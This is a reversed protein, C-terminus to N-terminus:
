ARVTASQQLWPLKDCYEEWALKSNNGLYGRGDERLWKLLDAPRAFTGTKAKTVENSYERSVPLTRVIHGICSGRDTYYLSVNVYPRGEIQEGHVDSVQWGDFTLDLDGYQELRYAKATGYKKQLYAIRQGTTEFDTTMTKENTSLHLYNPLRIKSVGSSRGPACVRPM